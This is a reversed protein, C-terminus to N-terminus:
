DFENALSSTANTDFNLGPPSLAIVFGYSTQFQRTQALCYIKNGTIVASNKGVTLRNGSFSAEIKHNKLVQTLAELNM